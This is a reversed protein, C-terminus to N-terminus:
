RNWGRNGSEAWVKGVGHRRSCTRKLFHGGTNSTTSPSMTLQQQIQLKSAYIIKGLRLRFYAFRQFNIQQLKQMRFVHNAHPVPFRQAVASLLGM